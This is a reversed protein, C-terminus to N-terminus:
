SPRYVVREREHRSGLCDIISALLVRQRDFVIRLHSAACAATKPLGGAGLPPYFRIQVAASARCAEDVCGEPLLALTEHVRPNVVDRWAEPPLELSRGAVSISLRAIRTPRGSTVAALVRVEGLETRLGLTSESFPQPRWTHAISPAATALALLLCALLRGFDTVGIYVQSFM